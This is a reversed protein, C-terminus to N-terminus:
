IASPRLKIGGKKDFSKETRLDVARSCNVSNITISRPSVVCLAGYRSTYVKKRQIIGFPLALSELNSSRRIVQDDILRVM